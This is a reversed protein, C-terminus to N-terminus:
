RQTCLGTPSLEKSLALPGSRPGIVSAAFGLHYTATEGKTESDELTVMDSVKAQGRQVTGEDFYRERVLRDQELLAGGKEHLGVTVSGGPPVTWAYSVLDPRLTVAPVGKISLRDVQADCTPPEVVVVDGRASTLAHVFLEPPRQATGEGARQRMLAAAAEKGIDFVLVNDAPVHLVGTSYHGAGPPQYYDWTSRNDTRTWGAQKAQAVAAAVTEADAFKLVTGNADGGLAWEPASLRLSFARRTDKGWETYYGLRSNAEAPGNVSDPVAAWRVFEVRSPSSPLWEALGLDALPEGDSGGLGPIVGCGAVVSAVLAATVVLARARAPRSM